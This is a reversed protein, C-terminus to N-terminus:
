IWELTGKTWAYALGLSIFFLFILIYVVSILGLMKVTLAWPILFIAAVDFIVFALGILYYSVNFQIWSGGIPEEGCEYTSLKERSPRHPSLFFATSFAFLVFFVAMAIYTFLEVM